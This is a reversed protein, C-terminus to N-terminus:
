QVTFTISSLYATPSVKRSLGTLKYQLSISSRNGSGSFLEVDSGTVAMYESGGTISGSGSGNSTRKVWVTVDSSGGGGGIHVRLSWAGPANSITLTTVGSVSEFQSKFDSGAGAVLDAVGIRTTWDGSSTLNASRAAGAFALFFLLAAAKRL